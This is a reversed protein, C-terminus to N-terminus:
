GRSVRLIELGECVHAAAINAGLADMRAVAIELSEILADVSIQDSTDRVDVADPQPFPYIRAIESM